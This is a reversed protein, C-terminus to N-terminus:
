WYRSRGDGVIVTADRHWTLRAGRCMGVLFCFLRELFLCWWCEFFVPQPCLYCCAAMSAAIAGQNWCLHCHMLTAHVNSSSPGNVLLYYCLVLVNRRTGGRAEGGGAVVERGYRSIGTGRGNGPKVLGQHIALVSSYLRLVRCRGAM